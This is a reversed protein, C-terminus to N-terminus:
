KKARPALIREFGATIFDVLEPYGGELDTSRVKGGSLEDLRGTQAFALTLAGSLCHYGWYIAHESADPRVARLADIFKDIAPNFYQSMLKGGWETSNNVYAVLAYYHRWRPDTLHDGTMLPRLYADIIEYISAPGPAAADTAQKLAELRWANLIEARRMFTEEFVATKRGFYYNALAVDVGAEKAIARLTVGDFGHESFLKEAADLIATRRGGVTVGDAM